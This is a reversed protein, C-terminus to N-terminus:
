AVASATEKTSESRAERLHGAGSETATQAPSSPAPEALSQELIMAAQDSPHRRERFSVEKLRELMQEDISVTLRRM